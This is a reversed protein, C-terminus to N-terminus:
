QQGTGFLHHTISDFPHNERPQGLKMQCRNLRQRVLKM